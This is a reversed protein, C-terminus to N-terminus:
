RFMDPLANDGVDQEWLLINVTKARAICPIQQKAKGTENGRSSIDDEPNQLISTNRSSTAM